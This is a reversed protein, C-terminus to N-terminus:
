SAGARALQAQAVERVTSALEPMKSLIALEDETAGGVNIISTLRDLPFAAATRSVLKIEDGATIEGVKLVRYYWGSHVSRVMAKPIRNDAFRLALKLCPQRPQCVQLEATGIRHIDGVCIIKEDLGIITLNEGFGGAVLTGAHEPFLALWVHYQAAAYGYIAKETGGHVSLDAQEDGVLGLPTISLRGSVSQKIFGSPVGSPGLPSILGIQVSQVYIM